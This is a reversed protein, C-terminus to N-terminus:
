KGTRRAFNRDEKGLSELKAGLKTKPRKPEARRRAIKQGLSGAVRGEKPREM